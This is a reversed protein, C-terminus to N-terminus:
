NGNLRRVNDQFRKGDPSGSLNIGNCGVASGILLVVAALLVVKRM